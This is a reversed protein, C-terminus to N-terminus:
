IVLEAHNNESATVGAPHLPRLSTRLSMVILEPQTVTDNPLVLCTCAEDNKSLVTCGGCPSRM